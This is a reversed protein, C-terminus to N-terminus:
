AIPLCSSAALSARSLIFRPHFPFYRFWYETLQSNVYKIRDKHYVGANNRTVKRALRRIAASAITALACNEDM